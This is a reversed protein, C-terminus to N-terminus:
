QGYEFPIKMNKISIMNTEFNITMGNKRMFNIGIICDSSMHMVTFSTPYEYDGITIPIYPIYGDTRFQGSVGSVLHTDTQDIYENIGMKSAVDADLVCTEAGTDLLCKLKHDNISCEILIKCSGMMDTFTGEEDAKDDLKNIRDSDKHYIYANALERAIFDIPNMNDGCQLTTPEEVAM